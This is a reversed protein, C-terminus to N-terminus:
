GAANVLVVVTSGRLVPTGAPPTTSIVEQDDYEPNAQDVQFEVVLGLEAASPSVLGMDDGEEVEIRTRWAPVTVAGVLAVLQAYRQELEQLTASLATITGVLTGVPGVAVDETVVLRGSVTVGGPYDGNYNLTLGDGTDHVLARRHNGGGPGRREAADLMLDSGAVEVVRGDLLLWTGDGQDLRIDTPM